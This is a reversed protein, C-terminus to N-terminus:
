RCETMFRPFFHMQRLRLSRVRKSSNGSRTGGDTGSELLPLYQTTRSPLASPLNGRASDRGSTFGDAPILCRRSLLPERFAPKEAITEARANIMKYGAKADKAWFPILGWRILSLTVFHQLYYFNPPMSLATGGKHADAPCSIPRTTPTKRRERWSGPDSPPTNDFRLCWTRGSPNRRCPAYHNRRKSAVVSHERWRLRRVGRKAIERFPSNKRTTRRPEFSTV